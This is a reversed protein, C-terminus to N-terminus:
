GAALRWNPPSSTEGSFAPIELPAALGKSGCLVAGRRSRAFRLLAGYEALTLLHGVQLRRPTVTAQEQEAGLDARRAQQVGLACMATASPPDLEFQETDSLEGNWTKRTGVDCEDLPRSTRAVKSFEM